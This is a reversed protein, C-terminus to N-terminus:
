APFYQGKEATARKMMHGVMYVVSGSGIVVIAALAAATIGIASIITM